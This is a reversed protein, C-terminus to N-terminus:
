DEYVGKQGSGRIGQELEQEKKIQEKLERISNILKPSVSASEIIKKPDYLLDGKKNLLTYNVNNFYDATKDLANLLSDLFLTLPTHSRSKYFEVARATVEDIILKDGYVISMLISASREEEDRIDAYDSKPHCLFVIYSLEAIGLEKKSYKDMVDKFAQLTLAQPNVVVEFDENFEFLEM